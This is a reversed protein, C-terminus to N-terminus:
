KGREGGRGGEGRMRSYRHCIKNASVTGTVNKNAPVTVTILCKRKTITGLDIFYVM